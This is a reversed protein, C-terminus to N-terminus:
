RPLLHYYYSPLVYTLGYNKVKPEMNHKENIETIIEYNFESVLKQYLIGAFFEIFNTMFKLSEPLFVMRPKDEPSEELVFFLSGIYNTVVPTNHLEAAITAGLMVWDAIIVDYINPKEELFKNVREFAVGTGNIALKEKAENLPEMSNEAQINELKFILESSCSFNEKEPVLPFIINKCCHDAALIEVNHGRSLLSRVIGFTPTVHGTYCTTVVLVNLAEFYDILGFLFITSFLSKINRESM